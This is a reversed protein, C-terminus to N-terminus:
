FTLWNSGLSSRPDICTTSQEDHLVDTGETELTEEGFLDEVIADLSLFRPPEEVRLPAPCLMPTAPRDVVLAPDRVPPLPADATNFVPSSILPSLKAVCEKEFKDPLDCGGDSEDDGDSNDDLFSLTNSDEAESDSDFYFNDDSLDFFTQEPEEKSYLGAFSNIPNIYSIQNEAGIPSEDSIDFSTWSSSNRSDLRELPRSVRDMGIPVADHLSNRSRRAGVQTSSPSIDRSSSGQRLAKWLNAINEEETSCDQPMIELQNGLQTSTELTFVPNNQYQSTDAMSLSSFAQYDLGVRSSAGSSVTSVTCSNCDCGRYEQPIPSSYDADEDDNTSHNMRASLEIIPVTSNLGEITHYAKLQSANHAREPVAHQLDFDCQICSDSDIESLIDHTTQIHSCHESLGGHSLLRLINTYEKCSTVTWNAIHGCAPYHHYTYLCM